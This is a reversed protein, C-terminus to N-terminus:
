FRELTGVLEGRILVTDNGDEDESFSVEEPSCEYFQAVSTHTPNWLTVPVAYPKGDASNRVTCVHTLKTKRQRIIGELYPSAYTM